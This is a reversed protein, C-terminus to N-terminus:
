AHSYGLLKRDSTRIVILVYKNYLSQLSQLQLVLEPIGGGQINNYNNEYINYVKHPPDNVAFVRSAGYHVGFTVVGTLIAFWLSLLIIM